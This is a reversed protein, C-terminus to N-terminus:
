SLGFDDREVTAVAFQENFTLSVILIGFNFSSFWGILVGKLFYVQADTLVFYSKPAIVRFFSCTLWFFLDETLFFVLTWFEVTIGSILDCVLCFTLELVKQGFLDVVLDMMYFEDTDDVPPNLLYSAILSIVGYISEQLFFWYLSNILLM